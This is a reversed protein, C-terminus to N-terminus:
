KKFKMSHLSSLLETKQDDNAYSLILSFSFDKLVTSYYVQHITTGGNSIEANMSYFETGNIVERKFEEDLYDYHVQSQEIMKRAQYLYDSGNKVGPAFQVNEAIVLLSPNFPVASGMEFQYVTLLNASNITSAEVAAKMNENDGAAVEKGKEMLYKVQEEDQVKWNKPVNMTMDFYTNTYVNNKVHGYDFDPLSEPTNATTPDLPNQNKCGTVILSLTLLSFLIKKM